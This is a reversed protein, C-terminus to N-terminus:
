EKKLGLLSKIKNKSLNKNKLWIIKKDRSGKGKNAKTTGSTIVTFREPYQNQVSLVEM